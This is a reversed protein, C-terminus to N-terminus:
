APEDCADDARSNHTIRFVDSDEILKEESCGDRKPEVADGDGAVGVGNM